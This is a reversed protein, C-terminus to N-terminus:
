WEVIVVGRVGSGFRGGFGYNTGANYLATFFRASVGSINIAAAVTSKGIYAQSNWLYNVYNNGSAGGASSTGNGGNLSLGFALGGGNGDTNGNSSGGGGGGAGGLITAGRAIYSGTGGRGVNTGSSFGTGGAGAFITLVEGPTVPIEGTVFGGCSGSTESGSSNYGGGGGGGAIQVRIQTIGTPVTWNTSTGVGPDGAGSTSTFV